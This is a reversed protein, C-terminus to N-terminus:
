RRGIPGVVFDSLLELFGALMGGRRLLLEFCKVSVVSLAIFCVLLELVLEFVVLAVLGVVLERRFGLQSVRLSRLGM